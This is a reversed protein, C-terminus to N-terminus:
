LSNAGNVGINDRIKCESVGGLHTFYEHIKRPLLQCTKTDNCEHWSYENEKRWEQIDRGTWDSKGDRNEENWQETCKEDCQRFNIARNDTM